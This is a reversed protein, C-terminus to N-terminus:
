LVRRFTTMATKYLDAADGQDGLAADFVKTATGCDGAGMAEYASAVGYLAEKGRNAYQVFTNAARKVTGVDAPNTFWDASVMGKVNKAAGTASAWWADASARLADALVTMGVPDPAQAGCDAIRDTFGGNADKEVVLLATNRETLVFSARTCPRFPQRVKAAAPPASALTVILAVAVMSATLAKSRLTIM